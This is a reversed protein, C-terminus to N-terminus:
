GANSMEMLGKNEQYQCFGITEGYDLPCFLIIPRQRLIKADSSALQVATTRQQTRLLPSSSM